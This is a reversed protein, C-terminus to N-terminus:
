ARSLLRVVLAPLGVAVIGLAKSKVEHARFVRRTVWARERVWIWKVAQNVERELAVFECFQLRLDCGLAKIQDSWEARVRGYGAGDAIQTEAM